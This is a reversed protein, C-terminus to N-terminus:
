PASISSIQGAGGSIRMARLADLELPSVVLGASRVGLAVRVARHPFQADGCVAEIVEAIKAGGSARVDVEVALPVLDGIIGARDLGWKADGRVDISRLFGRLEIRKGVGDIRRMVVLERAALARDVQARLWAEGGLQEVAVRPLGVVYHAVDIVRALTADSTGLAVAGAFRLGRQLGASLEALLAGVDVDAAIKVDV